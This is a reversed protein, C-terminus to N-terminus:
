GGRDAKLLVARDRKRLLRPEGTKAMPIIKLFILQWDKHFESWFNRNGVM